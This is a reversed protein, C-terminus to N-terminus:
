RSTDIFKTQFDEWVEPGMGALINDEIEGGDQLVVHQFVVTNNQVSSAFFDRLRGFEESLWQRYENGMFMFQIERTWNVPEIVYVWGEGYPSTNVKTIDGLLATNQQRIIGSLPAYLDLQKGERVLTMIKEGKRVKEGAEKMRIRTLPGTLHQMFDDLGIKVLGDKEMFAWTHTKDFYLGAPSHISEPSLAPSMKFSQETKIEDRSSMVVAVVTIILGLAALSLLLKIWGASKVPAEMEGTFEEPTALAMLNAEREIGPLDSFGMTNLMRQGDENIWALFALAKEDQPQEAAVAYINGTLVTPYKGTWVGRMFADPSGYVNEFNDIRGNRNKDVPLIAIAPAFTNAETGMIDTLRCFGISYVDLGVAEVLTSAARTASLLESEDLKCFEALQSIVSPNDSIMINVPNSVGDKIIGWNQERTTLLRVLAEATFGKASIEQFLPNSKSIVPVVADCGVAMKWAQPQNLSLFDAAAMINIKGELGAAPSKTESVAVKSEASVENFANAWETVLPLLEPTSTVMLSSQDNPDATSGVPAGTVSNMVITLLLGAIIYALKKM